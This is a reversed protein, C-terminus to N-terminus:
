GDKKQAEGAIAEFISDLEYQTPVQELFYVTHDINEAEESDPPPPTIIIITAM